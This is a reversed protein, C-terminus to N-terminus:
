CCCLRLRALMLISCFDIVVILIAVDEGFGVYKVAM